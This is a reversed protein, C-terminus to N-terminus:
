TCKLDGEIFCFESKRRYRNWSFFEQRVCYITFSNSYGILNTNVITADTLLEVFVQVSEFVSKIPISGLSSPNDGRPVQGQDKMLQGPRRKFMESLSRELM